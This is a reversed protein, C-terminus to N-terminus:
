FLEMQKGQQQDTIVPGRVPVGIREEVSRCLYHALQPALLNDPEHTFFYVRRLGMEFWRKLRSVWDDIRTFDSPHLGNGVFRIMATRNTLPMLLVDRRGAVDTIVSSCGSERMQQWLAENAKPASGDFWAPHRLELALPITSPFQRLFRLLIELKEPGFYPPLQLFCSGMKEELGAIVECFLLLQDSGVGLDRSHSLSQPIKPCFRFDGPTEVRWTEVTAPTPIRYHTTNHEITNFQLGYYHLFDKSKAGTPYVSGVWEPMGWGTCGIYFHPLISEGPAQELLTSLGPADPPLTFDVGSIDPLKGFEM